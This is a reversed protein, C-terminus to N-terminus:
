RLEAAHCHACKDCLKMGLERPRVYSISGCDECPVRALKGAHNGRVEHDRMGQRAESVAKGISPLYDGSSLTSGCWCHVQAFYEVVGAPSKRQLIEFTHELEVIKM